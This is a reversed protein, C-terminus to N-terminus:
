DSESDEQYGEKDIPDITESANRMNCTRRDHGTKNSSRCHRTIRTSKINEKKRTQKTRKDIRDSLSLYRNTRPRGHTEPRPPAKIRMVEEDSMAACSGSASYRNAFVGEGDSQAQNVQVSGKENIREQLAADNHQGEIYNTIEEFALNLYKMGVELARFEHNGIRAVELAKHRRM